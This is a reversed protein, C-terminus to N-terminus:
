ECSSVNKVESRPTVERVWPRVDEAGVSSLMEWGSRNSAGRGGVGPLRPPGRRTAECPPSELARMAAGRRRADSRGAGDVAEERYLCARVERQQGWHAGSGGAEEADMSALLSSPCGLGIWMPAWAYLPLLLTFSSKKAGVMVVLMHSCLHHPEKM